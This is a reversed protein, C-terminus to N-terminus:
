AHRARPGDPLRLAAADDGRRRRPLEEDGEVYLRLLVAHAAPRARPRPGEGDRAAPPPPARPTPARRPAGQGCRALRRRDWVDEAAAVGVESYDLRDGFCGSYWYFYYDGLM